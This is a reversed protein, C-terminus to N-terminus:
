RDMLLFPSPHRQDLSRPRLFEFHGDLSLNKSLFLYVTEFCKSYGTYFSDRQKNVFSIFVDLYGSMLQVTLSVVAPLITNDFV